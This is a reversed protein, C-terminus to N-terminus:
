LRGMIREFLKLAGCVGVLTLVLSALRWGSRSPPAVVPSVLYGELFALLQDLKGLPGVYALYGDPRVLAYGGKRGFGFRTHLSGEEDVYWEEVKGVGEGDRSIYHVRVQAKCAKVVRDAVEELGTGGVKEGSFLVLHHTRGGCVRQLRTVRGVSDRVEGDPLRDGGRVGGAKGKNWVGMGFWGGSATAEGVIRSRGRYNVGLQSIFLFMKRRRERDRNVKPVIHRLFFNRFPVWWPSPNAVFSFIKDTGRLLAVGIPRRELNYTDLLADAAASLSDESKVDDASRAQLSLATALKWGLNVADGIGANMGQGGAPSHIHAADGAVFLRGDRYTNVCRHHLRFRTLWVPDHLTGSGSPTMLTFYSQFQALTPVDQSQDGILAPNRSAVVRILGRTLPLIALVGKNSLYLTLRDQNVNSDRLQVDCLIFDQPYVDGDFTMHPSSHRVVSHAGDCGVVYKSRITETKGDQLELTTTVGASDQVISTATVPREVSLDYKALCEDLFSETEVQSINLPLTFETDTVGLDDLDLSAALQKNIFVSGGHLIRGRQIITDAAGHRNLLELTRPHVVLARSKDNRIAARDIIRFSVGQMALELALSGGTPGAGVILVDCDYAM